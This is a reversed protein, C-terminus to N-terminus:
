AFYRAESRTTMSQDIKSIQRGDDTNSKDLLVWKKLLQKYQGISLGLLKQRPVLSICKGSVPRNSERGRSRKSERALRDHLISQVVRLPNAFRKPHYVRRESL